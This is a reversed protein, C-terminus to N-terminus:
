PREGCRCSSRPEQPCLRCECSGRRWRQRGWFRCRGHGCPWGLWQHESQWWQRSRGRPCERDERNGHLWRQSNEVGLIAVMNSTSIHKLGVWANVTVTVAAGSRAVIRVGGVVGVSGVVSVSATKWAGGAVVSGASVGVHGAVVVGSTGVTGMTRTNGVGEVGPNVAVLVVTAGRAGGAKAGVAAYAM